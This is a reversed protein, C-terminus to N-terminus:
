PQTSDPPPTLAPAASETAGPIPLAHVANDAMEACSLQRQVINGSVVSLKGTAGDVTADGRLKGDHLAQALLAADHGLADLRLLDIPRGNTSGSIAAPVDCFRVGQLDNDVSGDYASSTAYLPLTEARYFRFQAAILRAAPARAGIFAFDIDARRRPNFEIRTGLMSMLSRFRAISTDYKLIRKIADAYDQKGPPYQASDVVNGQLAEFRSRFAALVRDGWEGTPVLAVARRMGRAAADEAAARAEDEPSLGFQLLNPSTPMGPDLTNLAIMPISVGSAVVAAADEKRLPGVIIGAGAAIAQHYADITGQATGGTDYAQAPEVAVFADRVATGAAALPGSLPLLLAVTAGNAAAPIMPPPGSAAAAPLLSVPTPMAAPAAAAAASTSSGAPPMTATVTPPPAPPPPPPAIISALRESGPHGPYQKRWQEYAELPAGNRALAALELWGRTVADTKGSRATGLASAPSAALGRWIEDRNAAAAAAPLLSERQVLAATAGTADGAAFLARGRLLLMQPALSADDPQQPLNQLASTADNRALAIRASVLQRRAIQHPDLSLSKLHDLIVAAHSPQNGDMATEAALLYYDAAFGSGGLQAAAEYADAAASFDHRALAARAQALTSDLTAAAAAGHLGAGIAVLLLIAKRWQAPSRKIM